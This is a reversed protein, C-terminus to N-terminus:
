GHHESAANAAVVRVFGLYRGGDALLVEEDSPFREAGAAHTVRDWRLWLDCGGELTDAVQVDVLGTREWHARWWAATHYSWCDSAWFTGGSAQRRTLHEPVAGSFEQMIGPVAFGLQGGPRVFQRLYGLYLDDTGFHAYADVCVVADFFHHAYPLAHAEAHVPYVLDGVGQAGIRRWNDTADIWLDTAWVQVGYERALFVSSLAKGCGLDLVRMGPRLDLAECLWETLWLANPGMENALVWDASYASARPFRAEWLAGATHRSPTLPEM